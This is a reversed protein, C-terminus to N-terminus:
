AQRILPIAGTPAPVKHSVERRLQRDHTLCADVLTEMQRVTSEWSTERVV